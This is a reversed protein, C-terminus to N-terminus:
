AVLMGYRPPASCTCRGSPRRRQASFRPLSFEQSATPGLSACTTAVVQFMSCQVRGDGHRRAGIKQSVEKSRTCTTSRSLRRGFGTSEERRGGVGHEMLTPAADILRSSNRTPYVCLLCTRRCSGESKQQSAASDASTHSVAWLSSSTTRRSTKVGQLAASASGGLALARFALGNRM